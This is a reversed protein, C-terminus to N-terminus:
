NKLVPGAFLKNCKTYIRTGCLTVSFCKHCGQGLFLNSKSMFEVQVALHKVLSRDPFLKHILVFNKLDKSM